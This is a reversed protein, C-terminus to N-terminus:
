AQQSLGAYKVNNMLLKILTQKPHQIAYEEQTNDLTNDEMTSKVKDLHGHQSSQGGLSSPQVCYGELMVRHVKWDEADLTEQDQYYTSGIHSITEENLQSSTTIPFQATSTGKHLHDQKAQIKTELIHCTLIQLDYAQTTELKQYPKLKNMNVRGLSDRQLTTVDNM